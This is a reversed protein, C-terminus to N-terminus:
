SSIIGAVEIFRNVAGLNATLKTVQGKKLKIAGMTLAVVVNKKGKFVSEYVGAKGELFIDVEDAKKPGYWFTHISPVWMGFSVDEKLGAKPDKLVHFHLTSDFDEANKQFVEDTKLKEALMQAWEESFMKM